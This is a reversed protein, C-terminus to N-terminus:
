DSQEDFIVTWLGTGKRSLIGVEQIIFMKLKVNNLTSEVRHGRFRGPLIAIATM